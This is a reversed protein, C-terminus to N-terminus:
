VCTWNNGTWVSRQSYMCHVRENKNDGVGIISSPAIDGEVWDVLALLVNHATDNVPNSRTEGSYGGQGIAWAGPGGACHNMGPILFLRYFEDIGQQESSIFDHLRKSNGSAIM